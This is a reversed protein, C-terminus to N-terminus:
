KRITDKYLGIKQIEKNMNAFNVRLKDYSSKMDELETAVRKTHALDM